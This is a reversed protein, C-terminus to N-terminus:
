TDQWYADPGAPMYRESADGNMLFEYCFRSTYERGATNAYKLRGIMSVHYEGTLLKVINDANVTYRLPRATGYWGNAAVIYRHRIEGQYNPIPDSYEDGWHLMMVVERVHAASRGINMFKWTALVEVNGDPDPTGQIGTISLENILLHPRDNEVLAGTAVYLRRTYIALLGTFVVLLWDTPKLLERYWQDEKDSKQGSKETIQNGVGERLPSDRDETKAPQRSDHQPLHQSQWLFVGAWFASALLAGLAIEHGRLRLM